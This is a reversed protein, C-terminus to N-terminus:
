HAHSSGGQALHGNVARRVEESINTGNTEGLERLGSHASVPIFASLNIGKGVDFRRVPPAEVFESSLQARLKAADEEAKDGLWAIRRQDKEANLAKITDYAASIAEKAAMYATHSRETKAALDNLHKQIAPMHVEKELKEFHVKTSRAPAQDEIDVLRSKDVIARVPGGLTPSWAYAIRKAGNPPYKTHAM